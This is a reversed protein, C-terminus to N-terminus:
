RQGVEEGDGALAAARDVLLRLSRELGQLETDSMREMASALASDGLVRIEGLANHGEEELRVEVTRRDSGDRHRSVMGREELRDLLRTVSASSRGVARALRSASLPGQRLERLVTLQALTLGASEWLHTQIPEALAIAALYARLARRQTSEEGLPLNTTM